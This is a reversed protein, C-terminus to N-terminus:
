GPKRGNWRDLYENTALARLHSLGQAIERQEADRAMREYDSAAKMMQERASQVRFREAINRCELARTRCRRSEPVAISPSMFKCAPQHDASFGQSTCVTGQVGFINLGLPPLFFANHRPAQPFAQEAKRTDRSKTKKRSSESPKQWTWFAPRIWLIRLANPLGSANRPMAVTISQPFHPCM